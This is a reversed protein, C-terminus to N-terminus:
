IKEKKSNRKVPVSVVQEIKPIIKELLEKNDTDVIYCEKASEYPFGKEANGMITKICELKKAYVTNDCFTFMPKNNIYIMYERFMKKYSPNWEKIQECVYEIYEKSTTM